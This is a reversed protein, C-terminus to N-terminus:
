DQGHLVIEIRRNQERGEATTNPAIPDADARGESSVRAADGADRAIIARVANARAASLQFNSPFRVSRFPQNDTYDIVKVSGSESRLAAAIRALLPLSASQVVANGPEFMSGAAIRIIPATGTGLLTVIGRDIDAQLSSRLRDRATPEAPPPSPPLPQMIAVRTVQPMHDPPAILARAQLGDSAANLSTSTWFLLGGCVAAAAACAVWVPVGRRTPQYPVTVGHWRQSLELEAAASQSAIAAHADSRVQELEGGGRVQRYRGMFGLSLCVFMLQIVLLFKQPAKRMQQLQEFFQDTGRAGPHYAKVLAQNVWGSTAGWPTNLVVDDISACLAYHTPRLLDMAIGADQARREFATLEQVARERLKWVDPPRRLTGLSALLQLLPAAAVGLPSFSFAAVTADTQPVTTASPAPPPPTAPSPPTAPRRRGGPAPRIVTRDAEPEAFPDETV